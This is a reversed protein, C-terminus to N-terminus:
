IIGKKIMIGNKRLYDIPRVDHYDNFYVIKRIGKKVILEACKQCPSDTIIIDDGKKAKKLVVVEAHPYECEVKKSQRGGGKKYAKYKACCNCDGEGSYGEAIIKDDRMLMAAVKRLNCNSKKQIEFLRKKLKPTDIHKKNKIIKEEISTTRVSKISPPLFFTKTGPFRKIIDKAIKKRREIKEKEDAFVLIDPLIKRLNSDDYLVKRAIFVYDVVSLSQLLEARQKEPVIPRHEGKYKKIIEDSNIGVVLIDGFKKAKKLFRLHGIHLIDFCGGLLIIKRSREKDLKKLIKELSFM